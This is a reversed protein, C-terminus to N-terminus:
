VLEKLHFYSLNVPHRFLTQLVYKKPDLSRADQNLTNVKSHDVLVEKTFLLFFKAHWNQKATVFTKSSLFM